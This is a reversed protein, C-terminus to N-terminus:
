KKIRSYYFFLFFIWLEVYPKCTAIRSSWQSYYFPVRIPKPSSIMFYQWRSNWFSSPTLLDTLPIRTLTYPSPLQLLRMSSYTMYLNKKYKYMYLAMKVWKPHSYWLLNALSRLFIEVRLFWFFPNWKPIPFPPSFLAFDWLKINQSFSKGKWFDILCM